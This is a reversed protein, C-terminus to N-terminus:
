LIILMPRFLLKGFLRRKKKWYQMFCPLLRSCCHVFANSFKVERRVVFRTVDTNDSLM